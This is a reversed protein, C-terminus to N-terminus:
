TSLIQDRALDYFRSLQDEIEEKELAIEQAKIDALIKKILEPDSTKDVYSEVLNLAYKEVKEEPLHLRNATWLGLLKNRRAIIKFELEEDHAFKAEHAQARDDFTTM